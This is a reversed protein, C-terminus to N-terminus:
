AGGGTAAAKKAALTARRKMQSAERKAKEIGIFNLGYEIDEDLRKVVEANSADDIYTRDKYVEGHAQRLKKEFKEGLYTGLLRPLMALAWEKRKDEMTDPFSDNREVVKDRMWPSVCSVRDYEGLPGSRNPDSELVQNLTVKGEAIKTALFLASMICAQKNRYNGVGGVFTWDALFSLDVPKLKTSM